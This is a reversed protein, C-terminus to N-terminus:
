WPVFVIKLAYNLSMIEFIRQKPDNRVEFGHVKRTLKTNHVRREVFKEVSRRFHVSVTKIEFELLIEFKM